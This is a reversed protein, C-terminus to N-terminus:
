ARLHRFVQPNHYRELESRAARLHYWAQIHALPRWGLSTSVSVLLALAALLGIAAGLRRRRILHSGPQGAIATKGDPCATAGEAVPAIESQKEDRMPTPTLM